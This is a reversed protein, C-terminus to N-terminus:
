FRLSIESRDNPIRLDLGRDRNAAITADLDLMQLPITRRNRHLTLSVSNATLLYRLTELREGNTLIFVTAPLPKTEASKATNPIVIVQAPLPTELERGTEDNVRLLPTRDSEPSRQEEDPWGTEYDPLFYPFAGYGYGDRPHHAHGTEPTRVFDHSHGGTGSHGGFNPHVAEGGGHVATMGTGRRAHVFTTVSALLVIFLPARLMGFNYATARDIEPELDRGRHRAHSKIGAAIKGADTQSLPYNTELAPM